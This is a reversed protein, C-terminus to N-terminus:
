QELLACCWDATLGEQQQKSQFDVNENWDYVWVIKQQKKSPFCFYDPRIWMFCHNTKWSLEDAKTGQLDFGSFNHPKWLSVSSNFIQNHHWYNGGLNVTVPDPAAKILDAGDKVSVAESVLGCRVFDWKQARVQEAAGWDRRSFKIRKDVLEFARICLKSILFIIVNDFPLGWQPAGAASCSHHPCSDPCAPFPSCPLFLLHSTGPVARAAPWGSCWGLGSSEASIEKMPLLFSSM